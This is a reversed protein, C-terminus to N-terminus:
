RRRAAEERRCEPGSKRDNSSDGLVAAVDGIECLRAAPSSSPRHVCEPIAVEVAFNTAVAVAACPHRVLRALTLPLQDADAASWPARAQRCQHKAVSAM